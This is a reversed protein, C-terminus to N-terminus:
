PPYFANITDSLSVSNGEGRETNRLKEEYSTNSGHALNNFYLLIILYLNYMTVM